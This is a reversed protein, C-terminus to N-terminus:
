VVASLAEYTEELVQRHEELMREHREHDLEGIPGRALYDEAAGEVFLVRSYNVLANERVGYERRIEWELKWALNTLEFFERTRDDGTLGELRPPGFLAAQVSRDKLKEILGDRTEHLEGIAGEVEELTELEGALSLFEERTTHGGEFLWERVEPHSILPEDAPRTEPAEAKGALVPDELLEEVPVGYGDALKALTVDHPHRIGRELGSITEKTVGTLSSAERLTLGREARLVRLKRGLSTQKM